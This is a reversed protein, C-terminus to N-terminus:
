ARILVRVLYSRSLGINMVGALGISSGDHFTPVRLDRTYPEPLSPHHVTLEGLVIGDAAPDATLRFRGGFDVPVGELVAPEIEGGGTRRFDVTV